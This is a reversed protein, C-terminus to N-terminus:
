AALGLRALVIQAAMQLMATELEGILKDFSPKDREDEAWGLHLRITKRDLGSARSLERESLNAVICALYCAIKRARSTVADGGRGVTARTQVVVRVDAECVQAALDSALLWACRSQLARAAERGAWRSAPKTSPVLAGSM